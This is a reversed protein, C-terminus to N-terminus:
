YWNMLYVFLCFMADDILWEFPLEILHYTEVRLLRTFVLTAILIIHYDDWMCLQLYINWHEHAPRLPPTSYINGETERNDQSDDTDTLFVRISFVVISIVIWFFFLDSFSNNLLRKKFSHKKLYSFVFQHNKIIAEPIAILSTM